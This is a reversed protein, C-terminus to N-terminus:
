VEEGRCVCVCVCVVCVRVCWVCVCVCVCVERVNKADTALQIVPLTFEYLEASAEQLSRTINTLTSVIVARLVTANKEGSEAWLGPLAQLISGVHPQIAEGTSEVLLSLVHLVAMKNDVERVDHLLQFLYSM